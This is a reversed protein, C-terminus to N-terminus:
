PTYMILYAPRIADNDFVVLEDTGAYAAIVSDYGAPPAVLTSNLTSTKYGVGVVVRNLLMARMTSASNTRSYGNSTSSASSTYIGKGFAGAAAHTINFSTRIINCLSCATATCPTTNGPDGLQCNRGTGHWRRQQNGPQQGKSIHSNKAEMKQKYVEYKMMDAPKTLVLYVHHVTPKKGSGTWKILFQYEIDKFKPHTNPIELIGPASNHTNDMCTKGCFLSGSFQQRIKCALCPNTGPAQSLPLAPAPVVLPLPQPQQFFTVGPAYGPAVAPPPMQMQMYVPANQVPQPQFVSLQQMPVGQNPMPAFIMSQRVSSTPAASPYPVPQSTQPIPQNPQNVNNQPPAPGGSLHLNQHMVSCYPSPIGSGDIWGINWCGPFQCMGNSPNIQPPILPQQQMAYQPQSIVQPQSTNLVAQGMHTKGCYHGPVKTVPDVYAANGCGQLACVGPATPAISPIPAPAPAPYWTITPSLPPAMPQSAATASNM